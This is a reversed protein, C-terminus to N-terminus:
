LSPLVTALYLSLLQTRVPSLVARPTSLDFELDCVEVLSQRFSFMAEHVALIAFIAGARFCCLSRNTVEIFVHTISTAMDRLMRGFSIMHRATSSWRHRRQWM